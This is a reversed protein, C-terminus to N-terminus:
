ECFFHAAVSANKREGGGRENGGEEVGKKECVYQQDRLSYTDVEMKRDEEKKQYEVGQAISLFHAAVSLDCECCESVSAAEDVCVYRHRMM